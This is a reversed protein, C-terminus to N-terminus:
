RAPVAVPVWTDTQHRGLHAGILAGGIGGMAGFALAGAGASFDLCNTCSPQLAAAGIAAGLLAGALFGTFGGKAKNDHTGRAVAINVIHPTYIATSTSDGAARFVLTDATASVVSGTAHSKGLVPSLIRVRSGPALPWDPGAGAQGPLATPAVLAAACLVLFIRVPGDM